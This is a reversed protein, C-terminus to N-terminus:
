ASGSPMQIVGVAAGTPDAIVAFRGYEMDIEPMLVAGGLRAVEALTTDLNTVAFYVLWNPPVEAPVTPPKAMMGAVPRDEVKFETYPMPGDPDNVTTTWGFVAAYFAAAAKTDTTMLENWVVAGPENVVEAGTHLGPQWIGFMAGTPDTFVAMRGLDKIDMVPAVVVGGHEVVLAAVTDADDVNVYTTWGPVADADMAPTIGAVRKGNMTCNRYGGLDPDGEPCSWGFLAGFFAAAGDPDTSSVDMWSPVGHRYSDMDMPGGRRDTVVAKRQHSGTALPPTMM